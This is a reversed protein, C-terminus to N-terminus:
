FSYGLSVWFTNRALYEHGAFLWAFDLRVGAYEVGAGATAYSADGKKKDGCHYGGRLMVLERWAYEAGASVSLAQVDAPSLRYGLDATLTLKHMQLFPLDAAGGVKVTAPLAEKSTLYNIKPGLNSAHLGVSWGAGEWDNIGCKYLVGLDFAVSSAGRSNGIRGMDSFLYKFTASVSFNKIVEYAYGAEVAIEKPHIGSADEGTGDMEPYGFYRFGLLIANRQNIKYFSGLSHLSYGSEYDRMWPSYTYAVGGRRTVDSLAAAGNHFVAHDGGPAAVGAGGMAASRADAPVTLYNAAGTNVPGYDEQAYAKAFTIGIIFLGLGIRRM